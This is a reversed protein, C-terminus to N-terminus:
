KLDTLNCSHIFGYTYDYYTYTTVIGDVTNQYELDTLNCHHIFRSTYDYYTYTTVIDDATNQSSNDKFELDTLNCHHIFRSTYDYYIYTTVIDDVINQSSNDFICGVSWMDVDTSYHTAGLLVEPARYWLTLIKFFKSGLPGDEWRQKCRAECGVVKLLLFTCNSYDKTTFRLKLNNTVFMIWSICQHLLVYISIPSVMSEQPPHVHISIPSIM